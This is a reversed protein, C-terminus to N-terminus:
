KSTPRRREPFVLWSTSLQLSALRPATASMESSIVSALYDELPIVNILSFTSDANARIIIDGAFSQEQMRQWHFDIGIQVNKVTFTADDDATFIFEKQPAIEIADPTSLRILAAETKAAIKDRLTLDCSERFNGNLIIEAEKYNQLIAVKIKPEKTIMVIRQM